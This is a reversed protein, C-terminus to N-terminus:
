LPIKKIQNQGLSAQAPKIYKNKANSPSTAVLKEAEPDDNSKSNIAYNDNEESEDNEHDDNNNNNDEDSKIQRLKSITSPQKQLQQQRRQSLVSNARQTTSAPPTKKLSSKLMRAPSPSTTKLTSTDAIEGLIREVTAAELESTNVFYTQNQNGNRNKKKNSFIIFYLFSKKLIEKIFKEM